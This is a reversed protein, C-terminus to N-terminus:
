ADPFEESPPITIAIVWTDVQTECSHPVGKEITLSDGPHLHIDRGNVNFCVTGRYVVIHEREDHMHTPFCTGAPIYSRVAAVDEDKWLHYLMTGGIETGTPACPGAYDHLSATLEKLLPIHSEM